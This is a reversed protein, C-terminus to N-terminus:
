AARNSCCRCGASGASANTSTTTPYMSTGLDSRRYLEDVAHQYQFGYTLGSTHTLMHHVTLPTELPRTQPRDATGDVWVPCTPSNRCGGRYQTSWSSTAKRM